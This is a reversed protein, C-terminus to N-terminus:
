ENMQAMLKIHRNVEEKLSPPSIVRANAGFSLVFMVVESTVAARKCFLIDSGEQKISDALHGRYEKVFAAAENRFRIVIDEAKDGDLYMFQNREGEHSEEFTRSLIEAGMIRSLRFSRVAHRLECYAEVSMRKDIIRFSIPHIIRETVDGTKWNLYSIKVVNKKEMAARIIKEVGQNIDDGGVNDDVVFQEGLEKIYEDNLMGTNKKIKELIRRANKGCSYGEYPEILKELFAISVLDMSTLDVNKMNFKNAKYYTKGGREEEYIAYSTSLEDIDRSVSRKKVAAGWNNLRDTIEDITYGIPNESLLSLIFVQRQAVTVDKKENECM